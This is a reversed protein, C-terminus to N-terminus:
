KPSRPRHSRASPKWNGCHNLGASAGEIQKGSRFIGVACVIPLTNLLSCAIKLSKLGRSSDFNSGICWETFRERMEREHLRVKRSREAM